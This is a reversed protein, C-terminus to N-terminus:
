SHKPIWDELNSIKKEINEFDLNLWDNSISYIKDMSFNIGNPPSPESGDTKSQKPQSRSHIESALGVLRDLFIWKDSGSPFTTTPIMSAVWNLRHWRNYGYKGIDMVHMYFSKDRPPRPDYLKGLGFDVFANWPFSDVIKATQDFNPGFYKDFVSIYYPTLENVYKKIKEGDITSLLTKLEQLTLHGFTSDSWNDFENIVNWRSDPANWAYYNDFDFWLDKKKQEESM